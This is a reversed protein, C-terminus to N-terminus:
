WSRAVSAAFSPSEERESNIRDYASHPNAWTAEIPMKTPPTAASAGDCRSSRVARATRASTAAVNAHVNALTIIPDIVPNIALLLVIIAGSPLGLPGLVIAIMAISVIGPTGAGAVAAVVSLVLATLLGTISMSVGYLQATFVTAVSYVIVM